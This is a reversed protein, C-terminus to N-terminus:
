SMPFWNQMWDALPGFVLEGAEQKVWWKAEPSYWFLIWGDRNKRVKM